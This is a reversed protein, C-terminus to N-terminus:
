RLLSPSKFVDTFIIRSTFFPLGSPFTLYPHIWTGLGLTGILKALSSPWGKDKYEDRMKTDWVGDGGYAECESWRGLKETLNKPKKKPPNSVKFLNNVWANM